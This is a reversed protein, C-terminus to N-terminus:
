IVDDWSEGDSCGMLLRKYEATLGITYTSPRLTVNSVVEVVRGEENQEYKTYGLPLDNYVAELGGAEGTFTFGEQMLDIPAIPAPNSKGTFDISKFLATKTLQEAGSKKGVGAITISLKGNETYAYKKAGMTRFADMDHEPEFVGMYHWNGKPDQAKSGSANSEKIKEANYKSWDVDGIYKVSDTDCYLFVAGDTEHVLRIGRELEYRAWATVWVGWAYNLFGKKEAKELIEQPDATIDQVYEGTSGDDWNDVFLILIKVLDQVMMGYISNLLAKNKNYFYESGAIGKLKTKNVYYKIVEDIIVQPLKGYKATKVDIFDFDADYESIIIQLDVDTITTELYDAQLVRGNDYYGNVINRCKSESLYPCGWTDDKLRVNSMKVRMLVALHLNTIYHMVNNLTPNYVTSFSSMPFECNCIVAPYSSSRDASHIKGYLDATLTENSYYRNAHTNGGRFAEKLELYTDYDPMMKRIRKLLNKDSHVARRVERRVYGTSTLPIKYLNDGDQEMKIIMAENLCIVDNVCYEIEEDTLPTYWFRKKTYELETKQHPTQMQEALKRLSMNSNKYSCRFELHRSKAKLPQRAKINFVDDDSFPLIGRLFQFEFALNHVYVVIFENYKLGKTINNLLEKFQSWTRGYVVITNWTFCQPATQVKYSFGWQWIYMVSDDSLPKDDEKAKQLQEKTYDHIRTTEIDFSTVMDKYYVPNRTAPNGNGRKQMPQSNIIDYFNANTLDQYKLITTTGFNVTQGM